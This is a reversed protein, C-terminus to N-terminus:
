KESAQHMAELVVGVSSGWTFIGIDGSTVGYFRVGNFGHSVEDLVNFREETNRRHVEPSYDPTGDERHELGTITLGEKSVTEVKIRLRCSGSEHTGRIRFGEITERRQGLFQDMLLIVPLRYRWAIEFTDQITYFADEVSSVGIVVRPAEGHSGFISFLLDSQETKTPMGTSPGGRQVDVIVAPIGAMSALGILEAMLSLGPGSTATFAVKGAFSAGLVVGLSAMEDEMQLSVGGAHPLNKSMFEMIESAPTIPYGSFIDVGGTIAGLSLAENGSFLRREKGDGSPLIPFTTDKLTEEGYRYGMELAELNSAVDMRGGGKFREEVVAKLVDKPIKLLFSLVGLIVMNRTLPRKLGRYAMEMTPVPIPNIPPTLGPQYFSIDGFPDVPRPDYILYGDRKLERLNLEVDRQGFAVLVDIEDGQSLISRSSVRVQSSSPKEGRVEAEYSSHSFVHLGLRSLTRAFLEGTILVGEGATGAFRIVLDM